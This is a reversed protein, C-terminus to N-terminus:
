ICWLAIGAEAFTQLNFFALSVLLLGTCSAFDANCCQLTFEAERISAPSRTACPHFPVNQMAFDCNMTKVDDDDHPACM